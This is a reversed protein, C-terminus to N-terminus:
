AAVKLKLAEQLEAFAADFLPLDDETYCNVFREAGAIFRLAKEPHEGHKEFYNKSILKGFRSCLQKTEKRSLGKGELYSSVDILRPGTTVETGDIAAIAYEVYRQFFVGSILKNEYLKGLVEVANRHRQTLLDIEEFTILRSPNGLFREALVRKVERQYIALKPRVREAVKAASITALWMPLTELDIFWTNQIRGLADRVAMKTMQAWPSEQLKQRQTTFDIDLFECIRRVSIWLTEGDRVVELEDGHFDFPIIANGRTM